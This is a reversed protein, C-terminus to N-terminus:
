KKLIPQTWAHYHEGLHHVTVKARVYGKAISDLNFKGELNKVSKLIKGNLGIFDIRVDLPLTTKGFFEVTKEQDVKVLYKNSSTHEVQSLTVGSSAYFDGNEMAKSISEADLSPSKVMVWGRGPGSLDSRTVHFYHADDSAVGYILKGSSLVEDWMTEVGVHEHDGHHNVGPHGNYLEMLKLKKVKNLDSSNLAYLYNPHNAIALGQAKIIGEVHFKLIRWPEVSNFWWPIVKKVNFATTHVDENGTVEVGPILIFDQKLPSPLTVTKPDIFMNHESIVLFNYGHEHYWSAVEEPTADGHNTLKTHAHTNGKFWKYNACYGNISFVVLFLLTM